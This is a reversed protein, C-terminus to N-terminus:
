ALLSKLSKTGGVGVVWKFICSVVTEDGLQFRAPLLMRFDHEFEGQVFSRCQELGSPTLM